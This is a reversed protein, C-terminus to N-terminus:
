YPEIVCGKQNPKIIQCKINVIWWFCCYSQPYMSGTAPPSQPLLGTLLSPFEGPPWFTLAWLMIPRRGKGWSSCRRDRGWRTPWNCPGTGQQLSPGWRRAGTATSVISRGRGEEWGPSAVPPYFEQTPSFYILNYYTQGRGEWFWHM